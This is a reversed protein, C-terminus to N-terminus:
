SRHGNSLLDKGRGEGGNPSKGTPIDVSDLNAMFKVLVTKGCHRIIEALRLLIVGVYTTM